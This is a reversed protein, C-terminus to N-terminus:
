FKRQFIESALFAVRISQPNALYELLQRGALNEPARHVSTEENSMNSQKKSADTRKEVDGRLHGVEHQFVHSLHESMREDAHDVVEALHAPPLARIPGASRGEDYAVEGRALSRVREEPANADPALSIPTGRSPAPSKAPGSRQVKERRRQAAKRLFDELDAM